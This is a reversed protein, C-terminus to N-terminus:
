KATNDEMVGGTASADNAAAPMACASGQFVDQIASLIPRAVKMTGNM